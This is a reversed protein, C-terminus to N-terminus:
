RATWGRMAWEAAVAAAVRAHGAATWHGHPLFMPGDAGPVALAPLLDLVPVGLTQLAALVEADRPGAMPELTDDCWPALVLLLLGGHAAVGAALRQVLAVFLPLADRDRWYAAERWSPRGREVAQLLLEAVYSRTRVVTTWPQEPPVLTLAGHELRFWPKSWGSQRDCAIDRLDNGLFVQLLVVDPAFQVAETEFVLLQQDTAYGCAGFNLVEFGTQQALLETFRQMRDVGQGFTFSDGLAAVRRVGDPKARTREGDRWGHANTRGPERASWFEGVKEVHPLMRWGLVPDFGVGRSRRTLAAGVRLGAELVLVAVVVAAVLIAARRGRSRRRRLATPPPAPLSPM